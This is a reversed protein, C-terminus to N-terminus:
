LKFCASFDNSTNCYACKGKSNISNLFDKKSDSFPIGVVHSQSGFDEGASYSSESAM